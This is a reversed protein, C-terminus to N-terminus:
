FDDGLRDYRHLEIGACLVKAEDDKSVRGQGFRQMLCGETDCAVRDVHDITFLFLTKAAALPSGIPPKLDICRTLGTRPVWARDSLLRALPRYTDRRTAGPITMDNSEACFDALMM